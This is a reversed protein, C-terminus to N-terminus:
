KTLVVSFYTSGGSRFQRQETVSFFRRIINLYEAPTRIADGKDFKQVLRVFWNKLEDIHADEMIPISGGPKAVRKAEALVTNVDDDGLHHLVGMILVYDFSNDPFDLKTADMVKFKGKRYRAAAYEIYRPSIDVGTYDHRAFLPAFEGTGCGIDLTKKPSDLDLISRLFTKEKVFNLEIVKRSLTFLGPNDAM